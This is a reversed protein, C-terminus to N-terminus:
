VVSRAEAIKRALIQGLGYLSIVSILLEVGLVVLNPERINVAQFGAILASFILTMMFLATIGFALACLELMSKWSRLPPM